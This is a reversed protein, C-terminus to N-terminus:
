GFLRGGKREEGKRRFFEYIGERLTYERERGRMEIFTQNKKIIM